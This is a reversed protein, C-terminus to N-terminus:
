HQKYVNRENKKTTKKYFTLSIHIEQNKIGILIQILEKRAKKKFKVKNVTYKISEKKVLVLINYENDFLFNLLKDDTLKKKWDTVKKKRKGTDNEKM